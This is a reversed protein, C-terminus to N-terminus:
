ILVNKKRYLGGDLNWDEKKKGYLEFLSRRCIHSGIELGRTVALGDLDNEVTRRAVDNGTVAADTLFTSATRRLDVSGVEGFIQFENIGIVLELLVVDGLRSGSATLFDDLTEATFATGVEVVLRQNETTFEGDDLCGDDFDRFGLLHIFILSSILFNVNQKNLAAIKLGWASNNV